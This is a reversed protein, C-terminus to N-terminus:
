RVAIASIEVRLQEEALAAQVTVRAPYPQAFYEMYVQNMADFDHIDQLYVNVMAVDGFQLGAAHLLKELNNLALRTQGAVDQPVPQGPEDAQAVQGSVFVLNGMALAPSYAGLVEPSDPATIISRQM